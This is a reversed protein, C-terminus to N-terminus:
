FWGKRKAWILLTTSMALVKEVPDLRAPATNGPHGVPESLPVVDRSEQGGTPGPPLTVRHALHTDRHGARAQDALPVDLLDVGAADATSADM